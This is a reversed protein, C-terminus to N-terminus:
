QQCLQPKQSGSDPAGTSGERNRKLYILQCFGASGALFGVSLRRSLSASGSLQEQMSKPRYDRTGRCRVLISNEEGQCGQSSVGPKYPWAQAAVM